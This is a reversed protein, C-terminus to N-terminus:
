KRKVVYPWTFDKIPENDFWDLPNPDTPIPWPEGRQIKDRLQRIDFDNDSRKATRAWNLITHTKDTTDHPFREKCTRAMPTGLESPTRDEIVKCSPDYRMDFRNNELILGTISDEHSVSDCKEPYGNIELLWELRIVNCAGFWWSGPAKRLGGSVSERHDKGGPSRPDSGDLIGMDIIYGNEVNMNHRKEYAGCMAYDGEIARNVADLWGPALVLRDDLFCIWEHRCLCLATNIANSKAWWQDKTVRYAGQFINPKPCVHDIERVAMSRFAVRREDQAAFLDVVIIQAATGQNRLSDFFWGIECKERSTIYAIALRSMKDKPLM